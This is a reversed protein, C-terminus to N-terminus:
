AIQQRRRRGLALLGGCAMVLGPIGAGVIPAPVVTAGVVGTTSSCGAPNGGNTVCIDAAFWINADDTSPGLRGSNATAFTYTFSFAQGCNTSGGNSDCTLAYNFDGFPSNAGPNGSFIGLTGSGPEQSTIAITGFTALNATPIATGNNDTILFSFAEHSGSDISFNPAVSVTFTLVKGAADESV